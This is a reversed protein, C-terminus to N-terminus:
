HGCTITCDCIGAASEAELHYKCTNFRTDTITCDCIGAASEAELNYKCTNFHTNVDSGVLSSHPFTKKDIGQDFLVQCCVSRNWVGM